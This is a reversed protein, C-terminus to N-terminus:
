RKFLLYVFSVAYRISSTATLSCLSSPNRINISSLISLVFAVLEFAQFVFPGDATDVSIARPRYSPSATSAGLDFRM